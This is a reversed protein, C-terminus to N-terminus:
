GDTPDMKLVAKAAALLVDPDIRVKYDPNVYTFGIRGDRGIIFVAPVPLLHHDRGSAAELDIGYGKYKELTTNDVRFAIGFAQAAKMESDSLLLYSFESSEKSKNLMQPNDPSIAIVQYGLEQLQADLTNLQGLHVNCYPCWGGRYFILVAPQEAIEQKLGFVNGEITQLKIDPIADGILLPRIANASVPITGSAKEETLISYNQRLLLGILILLLIVLFSFMISTSTKSM